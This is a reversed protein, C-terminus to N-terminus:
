VGKSFVAEALECPSRARLGSWLGMKCRLSTSCYGNEQFIIVQFQRRAAELRAQIDKAM